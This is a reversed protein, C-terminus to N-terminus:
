RDKMLPVIIQDKINSQKRLYQKLCIKEGWGEGRSCSLLLLPVRTNYCNRFLVMFFFFAHVINISLILLPRVMCILSIMLAFHLTKAQLVSLFKKFVFFFDFDFCYYIIWPCSVIVVFLGDSCRKFFVFPIIILNMLYKKKKKKKKKLNGHIKLIVGVVVFLLCFFFILDFCVCICVCVYVYLFFSDGLVSSVFVYFWIIPCQVAGLPIFHFFCFLSVCRVIHVSEHEYEM